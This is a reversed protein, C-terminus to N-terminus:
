LASVWSKLPPSRIMKKRTGKRKVRFMAGAKLCLRSQKLALGLRPLGDTLSFNRHVEVVTCTDWPSKPKRTLVDGPKRQKLQLEVEETSDPDNKEQDNKDEWVERGVAKQSKALLAGRITVVIRATEYWKPDSALERKPLLLATVVAPLDM